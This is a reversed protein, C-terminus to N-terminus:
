TIRGIMLVTKLGGHRYSKKKLPFPVNQAARKGPVLLILKWCKFSAQLKNCIKSTLEEIKSGTGIRRGYPPNIAVIGKQSPIQQLNLNFFDRNSVAVTDDLNFQRLCNRLYGCAAPDKDSAHIMHKKSAIWRKQSDQKLYNWRQHRYSPWGMFAFKRFAGPAMNKAMLAAELAFTGSGCMPDVLSEAGTYGALMLAAAAATERLPATGGHKKIGRRYLNDGSSDISVTFHDDVGRVYITQPISPFKKQLQGFHTAHLSDIRMLIRSATRLNLNALYCDQLRGQFVVGGTEVSMASNDPAFSSLEELCLKEFGPATVAFYERRRGIVHRKIRKTLPSESSM